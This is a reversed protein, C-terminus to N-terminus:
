WLYVNLYCRKLWPWELVKMTHFKFMYKPNVWQNSYTMKQYSVQTFRTTM